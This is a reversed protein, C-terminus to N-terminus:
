CTKSMLGSLAQDATAMVSDLTAALRYRMETDGQYRSGKAQNMAPVAKV